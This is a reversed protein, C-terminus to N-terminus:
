ATEAVVYTIADLPVGLEDALRRAMAASPQKAGSEIHSLYSPTFGCRVALDGHKIGVAERIARISSGNVKRTSM